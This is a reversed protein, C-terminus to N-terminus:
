SLAYFRKHTGTSIVSPLSRPPAGPKHCGKSVLRLAGKEVLPLRHSSVYYLWGCGGFTFQYFRMGDMRGRLPPAILDWWISPDDVSRRIAFCVIPYEHVQGPHRGRVMETLRQRHQEGLDVKSWQGHRAHHARLLVSLHFRKFRGPDPISLIGQDKTELPALPRKDFWLEKFKREYNHNLFQECDRCLLRERLGKQIKWSDAPELPSFAVL